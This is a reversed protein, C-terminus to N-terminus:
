YPFNPKFISNTSIKKMIDFCLPACMEDTFSKM